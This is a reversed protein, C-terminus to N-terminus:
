VRTLLGGIQAYAEDLPLTRIDPREVVDADREPDEAITEEARDFIVVMWRKRAEKRLARVEELVAPRASPDGQLGKLAEDLANYEGLISEYLKASSSADPANAAARLEDFEKAEMRTYPVSPVKPAKFLEGPDVKLARALLEVTDMRPENRGAEIRYLTNKEVRAIRALEAQGLGREERLERIRKGIAMARRIVSAESMAM